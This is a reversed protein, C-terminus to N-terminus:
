KKLCFVAYSISHHSSNLRTSKRDSLVEAEETSLEPQREDYHKRDNRQRRADIPLPRRQNRRFLILTPDILHGAQQTPRELELLDIGRIGVRQLRDKGVM